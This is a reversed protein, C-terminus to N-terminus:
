RVVAPTLVKSEKRKRLTKEVSLACSIKNLKSTESMGLDFIIVAQFSFIVRFKNKKRTSTHM